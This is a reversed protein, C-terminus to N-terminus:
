WKVQNITLVPAPRHPSLQIPRARLRWGPSPRSGAFLFARPLPGERMDCLGFREVRVDPGEAV